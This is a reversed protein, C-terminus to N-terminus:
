YDRGGDMLRKRAQDLHYRMALAASDSDSDLIADLVREHEDVIRQAREKSGKRTIGLTVLMNARIGKTLFDFVGLLHRNGSAGAIIRHFAFDVEPNLEGNEFTRRLEEISAQLRVIDPETRRQAAFHATAGEIAMRAEICRLVDAVKSSQILEMLRRPPKRRVYTGAGQRTLVVGDSQLRQMAERIVPRSVSFTEAFETETPLRDGIGFQGSLVQELVKGYVLDALRERQLQIRGAQEGLVDLSKSHSPM